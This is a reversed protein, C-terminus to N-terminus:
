PANYTANSMAVTCPGIPLPFVWPCNWVEDPLRCQLEHPGSTWQLPTILM